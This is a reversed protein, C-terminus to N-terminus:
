EQKFTDKSKSIIYKEAIWISANNKYPLINWELFYRQGEYFKESNELRKFQFCCGTNNRICM